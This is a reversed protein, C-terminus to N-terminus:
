KVSVGKPYTVILTGKEVSIASSIGCFENSIGLSFTNKLESNELEYKLGKLTVGTSIDTHSFVSVCGEAEEGFCIQSDTIATVMIDGGDIVATAGSQSLKAILQLNALTHDLRGGTAGYFVFDLFGRNLGEKVAADMDTDDKEKPLLIVNEGSPTFKLSDFDGIVIDPKIGLEKLYRYGGDAAIVFDGKEVSIGYFDGAGVIHCVPKSNM